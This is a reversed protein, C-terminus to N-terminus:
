RPRAVAMWRGPKAGRAQDERAGRRRDFFVENFHHRRRHDLVLPRVNVGPSNLDVLLWTIGKHKPVDPDTRLLLGLGRTSPASTWVKQGNVLYDDGDEAAPACTALDSGAGPESWLQCWIEEGRLM